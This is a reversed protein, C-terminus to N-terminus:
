LSIKLGVSVTMIRKIIDSAPLMTGKVITRISLNESIKTDVGFGIDIGFDLHDESVTDSYVGDSYFDSETKFSVASGGIILNLDMLDDIVPTNLVMDVSIIQLTASSQATKGDYVYENSNNNAKEKEQHFFSVEISARENINFGAFINFNNYIEPFYESYDIYGGPRTSLVQTDEYVPEGESDLIPEGESDYTQVAVTRYYEESGQPIPESFSLDSMQYGGGFYVGRKNEAKATQCSISFLLTTILILKKM